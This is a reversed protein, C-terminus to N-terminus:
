GRCPIGLVRRSSPDKTIRVRELRYDMTVMEGPAIVVITIEDGRDGNLIIKKCDSVLRNTCDEYCMEQWEQGSAVSLVFLFLLSLVTLTSRM